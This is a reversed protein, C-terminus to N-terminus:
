SDPRLLSSGAPVCYAGTFVFFRCMGQSRPTILSLEKLEKM